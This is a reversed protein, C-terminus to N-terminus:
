QDKDKQGIKELIDDLSFGRRMLSAIVKQKQRYDTLDFKKYKSELLKQISEKYSPPNKNLLEAFEDSKIGKQRLKISIYRPGKNKALQGKIFGEIWDHDNLYGLQSCEAIVRNVIGEPIEQKQLATRLEVSHQSKLALRKYALIKARKYEAEDTM